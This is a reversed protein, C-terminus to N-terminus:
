VAAMREGDYRSVAQAFFYPMASMATSENQIALSGGLVPDPLPLAPSPLRSDNGRSASTPGKTQIM